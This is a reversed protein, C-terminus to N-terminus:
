CAMLTRIAIGAVGSVGNNQPQVLTWNLKSVGAALM